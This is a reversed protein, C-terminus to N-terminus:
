IPPLPGDHIGRAPMWFDVDGPIENGDNDVWTGEETPAEPPPLIYRGLLIQHAESDYLWLREEAEQSEPCKLAVPIWEM